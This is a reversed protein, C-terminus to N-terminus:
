KTIRSISLIINLDTFIQVSIFAFIISGTILFHEHNYCAANYNTLYINILKIHVTIVLTRINKKKRNKVRFVLTMQM